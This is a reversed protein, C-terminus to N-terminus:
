IVGSLKENIVKDQLVALGMWKGFLRRGDMRHNTCGLGLASKLKGTTKKKRERQCTHSKRIKLAPM